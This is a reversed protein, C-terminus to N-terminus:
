AARPMASGCTSRRGPRCTCCAPTSASARSRTTAGPWRRRRRRAHHPPLVRPIGRRHDRHAAPDVAGAGPQRGRLGADGRGGQAHLVPFAIHDSYRRVLSRLRWADAFEKADDKLHLIVTTGRQRATSRRSPSNATPTRSGACAPQRCARRGQPVAGRRPRRRHVGFLLGRRVPRDAALGEARRRHAQRLVRGHRVQRHHGPPRHGGRPDHRHRQRARDPHRGHRRGRGLHGAGDRRGAAGPQALALFRLKDNADSANSILERLFIERHSYLSHIMLKLLERVEAKFGLTEPAPAAAAEPM